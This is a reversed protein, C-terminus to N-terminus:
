PPYQNMAGSTRPGIAEQIDHIRNVSFIDDQRRSRGLDAIAFVVDSQISSWERDLFQVVKRYRRDATASNEKMVNRVNAVAEGHLLEQRRIPQLSCAM